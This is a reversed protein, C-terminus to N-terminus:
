RDAGESSKTPPRKRTKALGFFLLGNWHTGTIAYAAATLSRYVTGQHEFGDALVTVHHETGKYTRRLITGPIPLRPDRKPMSGEITRLGAGTTPEDTKPPRVRLDEDRALEMARAKARESLGGERVAQERWTIRRILWRRNGSRTSEGFLKEYHDRLEAPSMDEIRAILQQTDM